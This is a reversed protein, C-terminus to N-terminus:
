HGQVDRNGPVEPNIGDESWGREDSRYIELVFVSLREFKM